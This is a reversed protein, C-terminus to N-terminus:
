NQPIEETGKFDSSSGSSPAGTSTSNEESTATSEPTSSPNEPEPKAEPETETVEDVYQITSNKVVVPFTEPVSIEKLYKAHASVLVSSLVCLTIAVTVLSSTKTKDM